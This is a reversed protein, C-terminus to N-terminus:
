QKSSFNNALVLFDNFSVVSDGDLDGHEPSSDERGFNSRLVRFDGFAVVGDRDIDGVLPTAAVVRVVVTDFYNNVRDDMRVAVPYEGAENMGYTELDHANLGVARGLRDGFTGDNNLDWSFQLDPNNSAAATLIVSADITARVTNLEAYFESPASVVELRIATLPEIFGSNALDIMQNGYQENGIPFLDGKANQALVGVKGRAEVTIDIGPGDIIPAPFALTISEGWALDIGRQSNGLLNTQAAPLEVYPHTSERLDVLYGSGAISVFREPDVPETDSFGIIDTAYSKVISSDESLRIESPATAAVMEVDLDFAYLNAPYDWRGVGGDFVVRDGIVKMWKPQFADALTWVAITERNELTGGSRYFFGNEYSITYEGYRLQPSARPLDIDGAPLTGVETGDTKWLENQNAIFYLMGDHEQFEPSVNSRPEWPDEGHVRFAHQSGSAVDKVMFTGAETGDSRWLERGHSGDDAIFYYINQFVIARETDGADRTEILKAERHLADAPGSNIDKVLQTGDETGDSRWLERGHIEDDAAFLLWEDTALLNDIEASSLNSRDGGHETPSQAPRPDIDKVVYTGEETGDSRWLEEGRVADEAAFYAVGQFETFEPNLFADGPTAVQWLVESDWPRIVKVLETGETTGDTKWLDGAYFGSSAQARDGYCEDWPLGAFLLEDGIVVVDDFCPKVTAILEPVQHRLPSLDHDTAVNDKPTLDIQKNSTAVRATSTIGGVERGAIGLIEYTVARGPPVNLVTDLNGRGTDLQDDRQWVPDLLNSDLLVILHADIAYNQGENSVTVVYAVEDGPFMKDKGNDISVKLDVEPPPEAPMVSITPSEAVNNTPSPDSDAGSVTAAYSVTGSAQYALTGTLTYIVEGGIPIDIREAVAGSRASQFSQSGFVVYGQGQRGGFVVDAIGDGNFDSTSVGDGIRETPQIGPVAFGNGGDLGQYNPELLASGDTGFFVYIAGNDEIGDDLLDDSFNQVFSDLRGDANVDGLARPQLPWQFGDEEDLQSLAVDVRGAGFEGERGFFVKEGLFLDDFGDENLDGMLSTDEFHSFMDSDVFQTVGDNTDSEIVLEGSAGINPGGYILYGTSRFGAQVFNDAFGDDNFDGVPWISRGFEIEGQTDVRIEFGKAGGLRSLDITQEGFDEHGYIVWVAGVDGDRYSTRGFVSDDLTRPARSDAIMLDEIGDGNVDGAPAYLIGLHPAPERCNKCASNEVVRTSRDSDTVSIQGHRGVNPSGLIIHGGVLLDDIGDGNIDGASQGNAAIRGEQGDAVVFGNRGNLDAPTLRGEQGMQAGGFIVYTLDNDSVILDDVGDANIDGASTRHFSHEFTFGNEGDLNSLDVIPPFGFPGQRTWRFGELGGDPIEVLADVADDPGQNRVRVVYTLEDTARAEALPPELTISLDAALLQRSELVEARPTHSRRAPAKHEGFSM